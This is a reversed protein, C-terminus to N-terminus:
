SQAGISQLATPVDPMIEMIRDIHTVSFSNQVSAQLGVFILRQNRTKFEKNLGALTGMALSGMYAVNAMDLIFPLSPAAAQAADVGDCVGDVEGKGLQHALVHVVVALPLHEVSTVSPKPM